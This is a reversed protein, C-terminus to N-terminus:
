SNITLTLQSHFLVNRFAIQRVWRTEYLSNEPFFAFFQDHHIARDRHIVHVASFVSGNPLTCSTTDPWLYYKFCDSHYPRSERSSVALFTPSFSLCENLCFLLYVSLCAFLKAFPSAHLRASPYTSLCAPLCYMCATPSNDSQEKKKKKKKKTSQAWDTM